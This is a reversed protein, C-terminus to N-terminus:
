DDYQDLPHNITVRYPVDDAGFTEEAFERLRKRDSERVTLTTHNKTMRRAVSRHGPDVSGTGTGNVGRRGAVLSLCQICSTESATLRPTRSVDTGWM